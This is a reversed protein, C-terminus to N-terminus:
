SALSHCDFQPISAPKEGVVSSYGDVDFHTLSSLLPSHSLSSSLSLALGILRPVCSASSEHLYANVTCCDSAGSYSM